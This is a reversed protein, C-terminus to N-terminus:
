GSMPPPSPIKGPAPRKRKLLGALKKLDHGTVLGTARLAIGYVVGYAVLGFLRHTVGALSAEILYYGLGTVLGPVLSISVLRAPGLSKSVFYYNFVFLVCYSVLVAYCVGIYGFDEVWLWSLAANVLFCTLNSFVLVKQRYVSTLVFNLLGNAFLPVISWILLRLSEAAPAFEPKYILLILPDATVAVALCFPFAILFFYKLIAAYVTFLQEHSAKDKGLLSLMPVFGLLISTSIMSLPVILRQSAEFMSVQWNDQFYRLFFTNIYTYGQVMILALFIPYSERLLLGATSIFSRPRKGAIRTTKLVLFTVALGFLNALAIAIFLISMDQHFWIVVGIAAVVSIRGCLNTLASFHAIEHSIFGANVTSKMNLFTQALIAMYISLIVAPDHINFVAIVGAAIAAVAFTMTVNLCLGASLITSTLAKNVSIERVIIRISGFGILPSMVLALARIFAFEGFQDVGLYNAVLIVIVLGAAFEIVRSLLIFFSNKAIRGPRRGTPTNEPFADARHDPRPVTGLPM